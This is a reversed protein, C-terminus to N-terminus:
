DCAQVLLSQDDCSLFLMHFLVAFFDIDSREKHLVFLQHVDRARHGPFFRPVFTMMVSMPITMTEMPFMALRKAHLM